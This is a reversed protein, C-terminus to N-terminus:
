NKEFVDTNQWSLVAQSIKPIVNVERIFKVGEKSFPWGGDWTRETKLCVGNMRGRYHEYRDGRQVKRLVFSM